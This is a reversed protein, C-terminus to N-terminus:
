TTGWIVLGAACLVATVSVALLLGRAFAFDDAPEDGQFESAAEAAQHYRASAAREDAAQRAMDNLEWAEDSDAFRTVAWPDVDARRPATWLSM